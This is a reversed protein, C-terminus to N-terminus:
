PQTEEAAAMEAAQRVAQRTAEVYLRVFEERGAADFRHGGITVTGYDVGLTVVLGDIDTVKGVPHVYRDSM